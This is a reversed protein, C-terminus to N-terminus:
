KIGSFKWNRSVDKIMKREFQSNVEKKSQNVGKVRRKKDICIDMCRVKVIEDKAGLM